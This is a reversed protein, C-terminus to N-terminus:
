SQCCGKVGHEVLFSPLIFRKEDDIDPTIVPKAVKIAYTESSRDDMQLTTVGVIGPRWGVGARVLVSQGDPQIELVKSLDTDLAEGVLRCAEDLVEQLEGSRLAFEGFRALVRQREILTERSVM